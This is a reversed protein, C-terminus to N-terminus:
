QRPPPLATPKVGPKQAGANLQQSQMSRFGGVKVERRKPFYIIRQASFRDATSGPAMQRVLEADTRGDGELVLMDKAQNYTMRAARATFTTGEAVVNGVATLEAGASPGSGSAPSMDNVTLHECQLVVADPGLVAPDDSELTTLWSQAPAHAARVHDHFTMEKRHIDGSISGLFRIHTCHLQVSAGPTQVMQGGAGAAASPPAAAGLGPPMQFADASTGRRVSVLWGPGGAALAGSLMNIALDATKMRDYSTQVPGDMARNELFVGGRCLIQEVQPQEAPKPESFLVPRVFRVDMVQTTMQGTASRATVSDEFHATRGDFEMARQWDVQLVGPERLQRGQMDHDLPVQMQGAGEVWVRNAGRHLNINSGTLGLGRGQFHAPEGTVTVAANPTNADVVHLRKGTVLLPQDNPQATQTEAFHVNGDVTLEMLEGQQQERLLVRAQLLHGRIELHQLRAPEAAPGQPTVPVMGPPPGIGPIPDQTRPRPTGLIGAGPAAAGPVAPRAAEFWLELRDVASSLQQSQVRVDDQALMRDPQLRNQGGAAQPPLELLWFHIERADLQGTAQSKVQAGGILSVVQDQDQPRVELKEIWHAEIPQGPQGAHGAMTGRLWGPGKALMRGLRGPGAPTYRLGRAHIESPEQQLQVEQSGELLIAGTQFDYELHEGRAVLKDAPASVVAPAGCAELRQPQLDFAGARQKGGTGAPPAARTFFISLLECSLRDGPGTPHIRIVDVQDKFTAVQKVLDFHFPGRCTVDIPMDPGLSTAPPAPAAASKTAVAGQAAAKRDASLQALDLHLREVTKLDFSEIGGVNPGSQHSRAAGERPLLKIEMDRGRGSHPGWRFDVPSSTSVRKESLEVDRTVVLLDDDPGRKKGRSRIKVSGRLKGEALKGIQMRTLDFGQDFRLRAGEPVELIIARRYREAPEIGPDDSLFLMTLPCLDVWGNGLNEYKQLLLVTRDGELIKPSQLEWSGPPFLGDLEKIHTPSLSTPPADSEHSGAARADPPPEILPVALLAYTWYAVLVIALSAGIHITRPIM